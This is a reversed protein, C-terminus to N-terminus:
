QEGNRFTSTWQKGTWWREGFPYGETIWPKWGMSRDEPANQESEPLMAEDAPRDPRTTVM